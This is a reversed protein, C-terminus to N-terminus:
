YVVESWNKLEKFTERLRRRFNYKENILFGDIKRMEFLM